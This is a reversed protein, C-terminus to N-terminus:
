IEGVRASVTYFGAAANRQIFLSVDSNATTSFETQDITGDSTTAFQIATPNQDLTERFHVEYTLNRLARFSLRLRSSGNGTESITSGTVRYGLNPIQIQLTDQGDFTLAFKALSSPAPGSIRRGEISYISDHCPCSILNSSSDMADVACSQHSCRSNLAFFANNAGRNIVIPYFQGDPLPGSPPGGRLPNLGLRVSGSEQLLAPFDQLRLRLTGTTSAALPTVEAAFLSTWRRGLLSSYVTAFTFTKIFGRRQLILKHM